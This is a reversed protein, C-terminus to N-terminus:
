SAVSEYAHAVHDAFRAEIREIAARRAEQETKLQRRLSVHGLGFWACLGILGFYIAINGPQLVNHFLAIGFLAFSLVLISTHTLVPSDKPNAHGRTNKITM